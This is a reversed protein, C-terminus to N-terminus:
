SEPTQMWERPPPLAQGLRPHRCPRRPTRRDPLGPQDTLGWGGPGWRAWSVGTEVDDHRGRRLPPYVSLVSGEARIGPTRLLTPHYALEPPHILPQRNRRHM